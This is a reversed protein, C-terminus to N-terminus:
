CSSDSKAQPRKIIIRIWFWTELIAGIMFGASGAGSYGALYFALAALLITLTMVHYKM